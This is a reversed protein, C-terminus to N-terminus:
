VVSRQSPGDMLLAGSDNADSPAPADTGLDSAVDLSSADAGSDAPPPTPSDTCSLVLAPCVALLWRLTRMARM